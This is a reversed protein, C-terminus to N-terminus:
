IQSIIMNFGKGDKLVRLVVSCYSLDKDVVREVEKDERYGDGSNDM